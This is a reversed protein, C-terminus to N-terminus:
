EAQAAPATAPALHRRLAGLSYANGAHFFRMVGDHDAGPLFGGNVLTLRTRGADLPEFWMGTQTAQFVAVDFPVGPPAQVNRLVLLREPVLAVIENRITQGSGLAVKPDHSSEISGGVRLDIRALPVAWARFGAETTFAAWVEAVPADIVAALQLVREGGQLVFSQDVVGEPLPDAARADVNAVATLAFAFISAMLTSAARLSQELTM